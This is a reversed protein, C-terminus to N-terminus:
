KSVDLKALKVVPRTSLGHQTKVVASRVAGDKCQHVDVVVGKMWENRKANDDVVIVIDGVGIKQAFNDHWKTRRTLCPLYERIWRKWFENAIMNSLRFQKSLALGGSSPSVKERIGSSSGLLFHNPTLAESEASDLPVYTLPRSNLISEVDALAARLNEERLDRKPLIDMLVAKISRVMREWAGGMHPSAPPIFKWQISPFKREVESSSIKEVEELLVRSAGRFNTANDSLIKCPAGRRCIFQKLVMLFSDTSLSPAIEIHVARVTMCTFVVGWRKERRRGVAIELPGFYDIGTYYFPRTYTSMREPPLDGMMPACPIARRIKCFQCSKAVARVAARLGFIWFNQRIENVVIENHKHHYRRHYFDILLKTIVHKQPLIIPRKMNRPADEAADIRGRIRLLGFNDLYPSLKFLTSRKTMSNGCKLHNIDEAFADAQCIKYLFYEASEMLSNSLFPKFEESAKGPTLFKFLFKIVVIQSRLLKEWKSFRTLDPM